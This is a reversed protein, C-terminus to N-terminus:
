IFIEIAQGDIEPLVPNNFTYPMGHKLDLPMEPPFPPEVSEGVGNPQMREPLGKQRQRLLLATDSLVIQAKAKACRM